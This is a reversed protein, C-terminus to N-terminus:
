DVYKTYHDPPGSIKAKNGVKSEASWVLRLLHMKRVVMKKKNLKGSEELACSILYDEWSICLCM